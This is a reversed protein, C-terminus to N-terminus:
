PLGRVADAMDLLIGPLEEALVSPSLQVVPRPM